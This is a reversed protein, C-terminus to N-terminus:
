FHLGKTGIRGSHDRQAGNKALRVGRRIGGACCNGGVPGRSSASGGECQWVCQPRSGASCLAAVNEPSPSNSLNGAVASGSAAAAAATNATAAANAAANTPAAAPAASPWRSEASM